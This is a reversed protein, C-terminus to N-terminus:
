DFVFIIIAEKEKLIHETRVSNILMCLVEIVDFLLIVRHMNEEALEDVNGASVRVVHGVAVATYESVVEKSVFDEDSLHIIAAHAKRGDITVIKIVNLDESASVGKIVLEESGFISLIDHSIDSLLHETSSPSDRSALDGLANSMEIVILKFM